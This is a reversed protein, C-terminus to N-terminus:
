ARILIQDFLSDRNFDADRSNSFFKMYIFGLFEKKKFDEIQERVSFTHNRDTTRM